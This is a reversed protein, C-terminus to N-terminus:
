HPQGPTSSTEDVVYGTPSVLSASLSSGTTGAKLPAEWPTDGPKLAPVPLVGEKLVRGSADKSQWKVQYGRLPYSPVEDASRPEIRIRDGSVVLAHVPSFAKRVQQYAAKPRRNADVVGWERNGSAPTGKFGSRYDNFTWLSLGILFPHGSVTEAYGKEFNPIRSDPHAGIQAFGWESFFVPRDPWQQHVKAVRDGFVRYSNIMMIDSIGAPDQANGLYATNSAYTLLRTSDLDRRIYDFMSQVYNRHNNIENGPSWGIICPHNYDRQIMESLWQRTLPNDKKVQADDWGWVPIEAIIMMGKEDLYDLLNPAQPVHMLRSFNAGASKMLDIDQRVLADPETNGYQNSDSVRNFGVVRVKEGNLLMGDPRIEIKRIGFRDSRQDLATGAATLRTALTYLNPHDFDWLRVDQKPLVAEATVTETTRPKLALKATLTFGRVGNLSSALELPLEKDSENAIRYEVRIKATGAQLDPTSTIHQWVLRADNDAVLSVSRSIGGWPWWAGRSVTNDAQVLLTNQGEQVATTIDFEFPTYGGVHSGLEKGNLSVRAEHNVAGFCLRLHKGKMGAPVTFTRRYWGQGRHTSYQPLTDWNGPVTISDWGPQDGTTLAPATTFEWAGDLSLASAQVSSTATASAPAAQLPASCGLALLSLSLLKATM